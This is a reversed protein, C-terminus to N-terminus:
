WAVLGHVRLGGRSAACEVRVDGIESEVPLLFEFFCLGNARDALPVAGPDFGARVQRGYRISQVALDKGSPSRVTIKAILEGVDCQDLTDLALALHRGKMAVQLDAISPATPASLLSRVAVPDGTKFRIDGDTLDQRPAGLFAQFGSLPVVSRPTGFYMSRFVQSPDYGLKEVADYRTSWSYDAALVMASFQDMNEIMEQENSFYGAWTTQLTGCKEIDAALDMSRVNNPQYWAGAIPHFGEKKWLQLSPLFSEIRSDSKYHWDAILTGQPISARRKIAEIENDGNTADIAEGPALAKDGWIMMKAGHKDAIQKLVPMQMRWLDSVLATDDNPFGRMDVEDCGFHLTAPKLLDCAEDWLATLLEKAKPKRPDIAYPVGPNVAVDLNQGNKFFWEMHGFSQILPIPDVGIARYDAFLGALDAKSMTGPEGHLNPLCDWDTRECQLVVQNFGLPLLVREWLKKQFSRSEPGVFLHVGRWRVQPNSSLYGTPLAIKGGRPFALLALRKLGNHFGEDEEGLVSISHDTITIQYGGPHFGLKSVGGDVHIVPSKKDWAPLVFRSKLGAIFDSDWFRVRGAPYDVNGTFVLPKDFKLENTKPKPIILPPREDPVIAEPTPQSTLTISETKPQPTQNQHFTWDIDYSVPKDKSVDLALNGFWFLSKGEAYDQDYGRADFLTTPTSTKIGVNVLSTTFQYDSADQAFKREETGPIIYKTPALSRAAKGDELLTGNQMVQASIMGGTLEIKVPKEGNWRLDYHVQLHEGARHYTIQGVAMGNYGTYDVRYTDDDIKKVPPEENNTSYYGKTWGAEYYQLWSGAVLPIGAVKVRLGPDVVFDFGSSAQRFAALLLLSVM